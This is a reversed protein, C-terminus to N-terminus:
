KGDLGSQVPGVDTTDFAPEPVDGELVDLSQRLSQVHRHSSQHFADVALCLVAGAKKGTGLVM